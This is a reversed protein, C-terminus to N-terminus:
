KYVVLSHTVSVYLACFTLAHVEGNRRLFLLLPDNSPVESDDEDKVADADDLFFQKNGSQVRRLRRVSPSQASLQRQAFWQFFVAQKGDPRTVHQFPNVYTGASEVNVFLVIANKWQQLGSIFAFTVISGSADGLAQMIPRKSMPLLQRGLWQGHFAAVDIEIKGSTEKKKRAFSVGSLDVVPLEMEAAVLPVKKPVSVIEVLGELEQPEKFGQPKEKDGDVELKAIRQSRRREAPEAPSEPRNPRARKPAPPREINLSQLVARNEAMRRQRKAEYASLEGEM